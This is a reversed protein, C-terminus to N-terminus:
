NFIVDVVGFLGNPNIFLGSLIALIISIALASSQRVEYTMINAGRVEALQQEKFFMIQILRIYYVAAIASGLIGVLALIVYGEVIAQYLVFFKSYFGALPPVGAYSFLIIALSMAVLPQRRGLGTLSNLDYYKSANGFNTTEKLLAVVTFAGITMLCYILGYLVAGSSTSMVVLGLLIFGVHAISSYAFLRKINTQALGTITGVIISLIAILTLLDVSESHGFGTLVTYLTYVLPLKPVISFYATTALSAGQYVDPLWMHYPVGGLKFLIGTILLYFGIRVGPMELGAGLLAIDNLNTLGTVGYILAIGLLMICSAFGGLIYYKLGSETGYVSTRRYAALIYMSLSMLELALYLAVLDRTKLLLLKGLLALLIVVIYEVNYVKDWRLLSYMSGFYGITALLVIISLVRTELTFGYASIYDTWVGNWVLLITIALGFQVLGIITELNHPEKVRYGLTSQSMWMVGYLLWVVVLTCLYVEPLLGLWDSRILEYM